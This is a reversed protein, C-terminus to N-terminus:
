EFRKPGQSTLHWRHCRPCRYPRLGYFGHRAGEKAAKKVDAKTPYGRKGCEDAPAWNAVKSRFGSKRRPM